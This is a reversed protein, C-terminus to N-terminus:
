RLVEFEPHRFQDFFDDPLQTGRLVVILDDFSWGGQGFPLLAAADNEGLLADLQRYLPPDKRRPEILSYKTKNIKIANSGEASAAHPARNNVFM